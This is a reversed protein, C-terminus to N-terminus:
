TVKPLYSVWSLDPARWAGTLVRSEREDYKDCNMISKINIERMLSYVGPFIVTKNMMAYNTIILTFTM